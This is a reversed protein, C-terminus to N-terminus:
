WQMISGYRVRLGRRYINKLKGINSSGYEAIRIESEDEILCPMSNSWLVENSEMAHATYIHLDLLFDYIENIDNFTPTVLEILAESFDTTIYKNTLPSGLQKPHDSQSLLATDKVRLSEKEIGRTIVLNNFFGKDKLEAFKTSFVM